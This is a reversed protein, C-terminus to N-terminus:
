RRGEVRVDGKFPPFVEFSYGLQKSCVPCTGRILMVVADGPLNVVRDADDADACACPQADKQKAYVLFHM